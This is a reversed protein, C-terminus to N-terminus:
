LYHYQVTLIAGATTSTSVSGSNSSTVAYASASVPIDVSGTGEFADLNFYDLMTHAEDQYSLGTQAAAQLAQLSLVADIEASVMPTADVPDSATLVVRMTQWASGWTSPTYALSTNATGAISIQVGILQGLAPNFRPIAVSSSWNTTQVPITVSASATKLQSLVIPATAAADPAFTLGSGLAALVLGMSIRKLNM